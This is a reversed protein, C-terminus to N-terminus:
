SAPEPIKWGRIVLWAMFILKGFFTIMLWGLDVGPLLFPAIEYVLWGLGAIGVTVGV